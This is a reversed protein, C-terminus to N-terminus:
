KLRGWLSVAKKESPMPKSGAKGMALAQAKAVRERGQLLQQQFSHRLFVEMEDRSISHDSNLDLHKFVHFVQSSTPPEIGEVQRSVEGLFEGLEKPELFGNGNKDMNTFVSTVVKQFTDEDGLITELAEITEELSPANALAM